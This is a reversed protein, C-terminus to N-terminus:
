QYAPVGLLHKKKKFNPQLLLGWYCMPMSQLYSHGEQCFSPQILLVPLRHDPTHLAAPSFFVSFPAKCDMPPWMFLLKAVRPWTSDCVALLQNVPAEKSVLGPGADEAEPASVKM